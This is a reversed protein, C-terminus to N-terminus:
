DGPIRPITGSMVQGDEGTTMFQSNPLMQMDVIPGHHGTYEYKITAHRRGGEPARLEWIRVNGDAHATLAYKGDRILFGQTIAGFQEAPIIIPSSGTATNWVQGIGEQNTSLLRNGDLSFSVSTIPSGTTQSLFKSEKTQPDFVRVGGEIDGTALLSHKPAFELATMAPGDENLPRTYLNLFDRRRLDGVWWARARGDQGVTAIQNSLPSFAARNLGPAHLARVTTGDEPLHLTALGPEVALLWNGGPSFSVQTPARHYPDIRYLPEGTVRSVEINGDADGTAVLAPKGPAATVAGVTLPGGSPQLIGTTLGNLPILRGQTEIGRRAVLALKGHADVALLPTSELEATARLALRCHTPDAVATGAIMAIWGILGKARISILYTWRMDVSVGEPILKCRSSWSKLRSFPTRSTSTERM